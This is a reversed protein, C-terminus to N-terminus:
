CSECYEASCLNTLQETYINIKKDNQELVAARYSHWLTYMKLARKANTSHCDQLSVSLLANEVCEQWKGEFCLRDNVTADANYNSATEDICGYIKPEVTFSEFSKIHVNAM